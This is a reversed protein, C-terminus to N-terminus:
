PAAPTTLKSFDLLRADVRAVLIHRFDTTAITSRHFEMHTYGFTDWNYLTFISYKLDNYISNRLSGYKQKRKEVGIPAPGFHQILFVIM